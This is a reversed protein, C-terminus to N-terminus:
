RDRPSQSPDTLDIVTASSQQSGMFRELAEAIDRAATVLRDLAYQESERIASVRSSLEQTATEQIEAIADEACRHRRAIELEVERRVQDGHHLTQVRFADAEEQARARLADVEARVSAAYADAEDIVQRAYARAEALLQEETPKTREALSPPPPTAPLWDHPLETSSNALRPATTPPPSDPEIMPVLRSDEAFPADLRPLFPTDPM